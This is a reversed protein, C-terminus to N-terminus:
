VAAQALAQLELSHVSSTMTQATAKGCQTQCHLLLNPVHRSLMIAYSHDTDDAPHRGGGGGSGNNAPAQIPRARNFMRAEHSAITCKEFGAPDLVVHLRAATHNEADLLATVDRKLMQGVDVGNIRLVRM